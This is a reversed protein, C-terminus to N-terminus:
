DDQDLVLVCNSDDYIYLWGRGGSAPHRRRGVYACVAPRHEYAHEREPAHQRQAEHEPRTLLNRM